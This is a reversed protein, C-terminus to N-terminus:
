RQRDPTESEQVQMNNASCVRVDKLLIVNLCMRNYYMENVTQRKVMLQCIFAFIGYLDNEASM